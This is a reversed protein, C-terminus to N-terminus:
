KSKVVSEDLVERFYCWRSTHLFPNDTYAHAHIITLM